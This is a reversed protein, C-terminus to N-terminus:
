ISRSVHGDLRLHDHRQGGRVATGTRGTASGNSHMGALLALISSHSSCRKADGVKLMHVCRGSGHMVPGGTSIWRSSAHDRMDSSVMSGKDFYMSAM